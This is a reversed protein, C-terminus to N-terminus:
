LVFPARTLSQTIKKEVVPYLGQMSTQVKFHAVCQLHCDSQLITCLDPPQSFVSSLVLSESGSSSLALKLLLLCFILAGICLLLRKGPWYLRLPQVSSSPYYQSTLFENWVSLYNQFASQRNTRQDDEQHALITLKYWFSVSHSKYSTSQFSSLNVTKFGLSLMTSQSSLFKPGLHWSDPNPQPTLSLPIVM